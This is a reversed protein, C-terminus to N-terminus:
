CYIEFLFFWFWPHRTDPDNAKKLFWSCLLPPQLMNLTSKYHYNKQLKDIKNIFYNGCTIPLVSTGIFICLIFIVIIKKM